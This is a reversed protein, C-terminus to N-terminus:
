ARNEPIARRSKDEQMSGEIAEIFLQKYSASSQWEDLMLKIISVVYYILAEPCFESIADTYPTFLTALTAQTINIPDLFRWYMLNLIRIDSPLPYLDVSTGDIRFRDPYESASSSLNLGADLHDTINIEKLPPNYYSQLHVTFYSREIERYDAPLAYTRQLPVTNITGSSLTFWFTYDRNIMRQASKMKQRVIVPMNVPPNTGPWCHTIIEDYMEGYTM